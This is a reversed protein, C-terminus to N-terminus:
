KPGSWNGVLDLALYLGPSTAGTRIFLEGILTATAPLTSGSAITSGAELAILRAELGTITTTAQTGTHASRTIATDLTTQLDVITSISQTGEHLARRKLSLSDTM